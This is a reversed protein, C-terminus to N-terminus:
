LMSYTISTGPPVGPNVPLWELAAGILDYPHDASMTAYGPMTLLWFWEFFNEYPLATYPTASQSNGILASLDKPVDNLGPAGTPQVSNGPGIGVIVPYISPNNSLFQNIRVYGTADVYCGFSHSFGAGGWDIFQNYAVEMFPTGGPPNADLTVALTGSARELDTWYMAIKPPQAVFEPGTPTFDFGPPTPSTNLTAYGNACLHAFTTNVGYFPLTLGYSQLNLTAYGDDDNSLVPFLSIPGQTATAQTAATLSFGTPSLPDLIVSQFAVTFGVPILGLALSGSQPVNVTVSDSGVANTSFYQPQRFGDYIATAVYAAPNAPVPLDWQDGFYNAAGVSLTGNPSALMAYPMNPFGGHTITSQTNTRFTITMPYAPGNNGDITLTAGLTNPQQALAGAALWAAIWTSKACVSM